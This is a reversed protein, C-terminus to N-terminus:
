TPRQFASLGQAIKAELEEHHDVVADHVEQEIKSKIRKSYASM